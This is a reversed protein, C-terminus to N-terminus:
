FNAKQPLKCILNFLPLLNKLHRKIRMVEIFSHLQYLDLCPAFTYGQLQKEIIVGDKKIRIMLKKLGDIDDNHCLYKRQCEYYNIRKLLKKEVKILKFKSNM